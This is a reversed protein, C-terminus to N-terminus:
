KDIIDVRLRLNRVLRLDHQRLDVRGGSQVFCDFVMVDANSKFVIAIVMGGAETTCTFEYSGYLDYM